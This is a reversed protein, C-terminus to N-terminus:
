LSQPAARAGRARPLRQRVSHHHRPASEVRAWAALLRREGRMRATTHKVRGRREVRAARAAGTLTRLQTKPPRRAHRAKTPPPLGGILILDRLHLLRANAQAESLTTETPKLLREFQQRRLVAAGDGALVASASAVAAAASVASAAMIREADRGDDLRSPPRSGRPDRGNHRTRPWM